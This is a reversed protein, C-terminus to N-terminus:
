VWLFALSDVLALGRRRESTASSKIERVVPSMTSAGVRQDVEWVLNLIMIGEVRWSTTATMKWGWLWETLIPLRDEPM